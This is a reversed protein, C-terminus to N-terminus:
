GRWGQTWSTKMESEFFVIVSHCVTEDHDASNAFTDTNAQLPSLILLKDPFTPMRSSNQFETTQM